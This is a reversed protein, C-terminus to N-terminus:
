YCRQYTRSIRDHWGLHDVDLLMWLFGLGAAAVSFYSALIRGRRMRVTPNSDDFTCLAIRAYRMGPTADSYTLFIWQYAASLALLIAGASIIAFSDSPPRSVIAVFGAMFIVFGLLTLGLDLAAAMLRRDMPAPQMPLEFQSAPLASAAASLLPSDLQIYHWEAAPAHAIADVSAALPKRSIQEPEVEFIRLQADEKALAAGAGATERLPGEALRPRAKRAAILQRPFEILNASLPLNPEVTSEAYFNAPVPHALPASQNTQMPGRAAELEPPFVATPLPAFDQQMELASSGETQMERGRDFHMAEDCSAAAAHTSGELDLSVQDAFFPQDAFPEAAPVSSLSSLYESYSPAAAYREAVAAAVTAARDGAHRPAHDLGPLATQRSQRRGRHAQLRAVVEQKWVPIESNALAPTATSSLAVDEIRM